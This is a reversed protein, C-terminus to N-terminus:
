VDFKVRLIGRADSEPLRKGMENRIVENDVKTFILFTLRQLQKFSAGQAFLHDYSKWDIPFDPPDLRDMQSIHINFEVEELYPSKIRALILPYWGVASSLQFNDMFIFQEIRIYRLSTLLSLDVEGHFEEAYFKLPRCWAAPFLICVRMVEQTWIQFGLPYISLLRGTEASIIALLNSM